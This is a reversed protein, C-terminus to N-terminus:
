GFSPVFAALSCLNISMHAFLAYLSNNCGIVSQLIKLLSNISSIFCWLPTTIRGIQAYLLVKPSCIISNDGICFGSM